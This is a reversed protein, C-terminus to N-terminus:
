DGKYNYKRKFVKVLLRHLAIKYGIEFDFIDEEHKKAKGVFGLSSIMIVDNTELITLNLETGNFLTVTDYGIHADNEKYVYEMIEKYEKNLNNLEKVNLKLDEKLNAIIIEVDQNQELKSLEIITQNIDDITENIKIEREFNESIKGIKKTLRKLRQSM